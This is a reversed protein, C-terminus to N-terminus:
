ADAYRFFLGTLLFKGTYTHVSDDIFFFYNVDDGVAFTDGLNITEEYIDEDAQSVSSASAISQTGLATDYAEDDALPSMQVGFALVLAGPAGDLVGRIVLVPTGVYNQPVTFRGYFGTDVSITAAAPMVICLENGPASALSLEASIPSPYVDGSNDPVTGSGLIPLDHSAM